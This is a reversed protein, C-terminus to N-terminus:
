AINMEKKWNEVDELKKETEKKSFLEARKLYEQTLKNLLNELEEETISIDGIFSGMLLYDPDNAKLKKLYFGADNYKMSFIYSKPNQSSYVYKKPWNKNNDNTVNIMTGDVDLVAGTNGDDKYIPFKIISKEALQFFTEKTFSM